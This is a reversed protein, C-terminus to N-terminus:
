KNWVKIERLKKLDNNYLERIDTIKWYDSIIRAMGQGWALIPCEFGLLAKSVEPRFIGAGGLEVWEKKVPHFVDVELSPETYPFHAPRIRIKDFGMKKYFEILYGKLHRLTANEDVVIGEVQYFEFLHKWDLTENRFVKGVAFYKVPLDKKNLKSLIHASLCTTHTRLLIRSSEKESFKGGWGKSGTDGGTEHIEKVKAMMGSDLEAKGKLYFTDQMERAPHDQPVFLVDLDWFASEVFNGTMEKFGLDLWIQKIYDLADNVFHIKGGSISPVRSTVDYKRFKKDKWSGAKIISPTLSEISESVEIKSNTLTKGLESLEFYITKKVELRLIQKRSKLNDFAFKDEADLNNIELPFKKNLFQEELSDKELMKKGQPTIKLIGKDMLLAAKKKLNGLSIGIEEKSLSSIDKIKKEGENLEILLRKEPLGKELYIQGNKDLFVFEKQEKSLKIIGKNELWQFSRMVEIEKLGSKKVVDDLTKSSKLNNLVKIELPHLTEIIKSIKLNVKVNNM